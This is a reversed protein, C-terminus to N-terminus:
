VWMWECTWMDGMGQVDVGCPDAEREGVGQVDVSCPDAEREGVGQVDVSCPDASGKVCKNTAVAETYFSVPLNPDALATTSTAGAEPAARGFM